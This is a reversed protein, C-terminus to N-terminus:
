LFHNFSFPVRFHSYLPLSFIQLLKSVSYYLSVLLRHILPLNQSIPNSIIPQVCNFFTSPFLPPVQLTVKFYWFSFSLLLFFLSISFSILPQCESLVLWRFITYPRNLQIPRSYLFIPNATLTVMISVIMCHPSMIPYFDSVPTSKPTKIRWLHLAFYPPNLHSIIEFCVPLSFPHIFILLGHTPLPQNKQLTSNKRLSNRQLILGMLPPDLHIGLWVTFILRFVRNINIQEKCVDVIGYWVGIAWNKVRLKYDESYRERM